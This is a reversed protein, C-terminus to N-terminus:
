GDNDAIGAIQGPQYINVGHKNAQATKYMALAVSKAEIALRSRYRGPVLASIGKFFTGALNEALRFEKRDGLLLSPRFISIAELPIRILEDELQGKMRSYWFPSDRNASMSSILLLHRAGNQQALRAVALPYEVDVRFMAEKSGAKKITTGLCCFVDNVGFHTQVEELRDFDCVVENLKPDALSLSSRVLAHVKEYNTSGLLLHLLSNGVLGSAGVILAKKGSM